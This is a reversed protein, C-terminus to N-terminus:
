MQALATSSVLSTALRLLKFEAGPESPNSQNSAAQSQLSRMVGKSGCVPNIRTVPTVYEGGHDHALDLVTVLSPTGM